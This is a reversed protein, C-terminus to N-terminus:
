IFEFLDEHDVPWEFVEKKIIHHEIYFPISYLDILSKLFKNKQPAIKSEHLHLGALTISLNSAGASLESEPPSKLRNM